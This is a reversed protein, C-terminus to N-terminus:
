PLMKEFVMSCSFPPVSEKDHVLVATLHSLFCSLLKRLEQYRYSIKFKRIELTSTKLKPSIVRRLQMFNAFKRSVKIIEDDLMLLEDFISMQFHCSITNRFTPVSWGTLRRWIGFSHSGGLFDKTKSQTRHANIYITLNKHELPHATAGETERHQQVFEWKEM